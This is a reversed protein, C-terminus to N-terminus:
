RKGEYRLYKQVVRVCRSQWIYAKRFKQSNKRIKEFKKHITSAFILGQGFNNSLTVLQGGFHKHNASHTYQLRYVSLKLCVESVECRFFISRVILEVDAESDNIQTKDGCNISLYMTAESKVLEEKNESLLHVFSTSHNSM